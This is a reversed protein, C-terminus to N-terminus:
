RIRGDTIAGIVSSPGLVGGVPPNTNLKQTDLPGALPGTKLRLGEDSTGPFSGCGNQNPCRILCKAVVAGVDDPVAEGAVVRLDARLVRAGEVQWM